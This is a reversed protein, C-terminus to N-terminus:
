QVKITGRFVTDTVVQAFLFTHVVKLAYTGRALGRLHARYYNQASFPLPEDSLYADVELRLARSGESVLAGRLTYGLTPTVLQGTVLIGGSEPAAVTPITPFGFIVQGAFELTPTSPETPSSGCGAALLVLPAVLPFRFRM